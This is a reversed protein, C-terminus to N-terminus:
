LKHKVSFLFYRPQVTFTTSNSLLENFGDRNITTNNLLNTVEMVFEWSSDNKQYSLSGEMVHYDNLLQTRNRYNIYSYDLIFTFKKLLLADFKAFPRNNIYNDTRNDLQYANSSWDLGLEINPADKFNTALSTQYNQSFSYSIANQGNVINNLKAYSLSTNVLWKIKSFRKEFYSFLSYNHDAFNSNISTSLQDIGIIEVNNKFAKIKKNYSLTAMLNTFNFMNFNNYRLSYNEYQANELNRNGQYFSNYSNFTYGKARTNIDSFENSLNFNFRLEKSSSFNYSMQVRPLWSVVNNNITNGLQQDWTTYRHLTFGPSFKFTGKIMNYNIGMYDDNIRFMVDNRLSSDEFNLIQNGELIQFISSNFNQRNRTTALSFNLNSKKNLVYYYDMKVKWQLTKTLQKQNLDVLSQTNNIPLISSFPTRNRNLRYFPNQEQISHQATFSFVHRESLTYYININQNLTIPQEANTSNITESVLAKSLLESQQEVDGKKFFVDYDWQFNSNPKYSSSLKFIRNQNKFVSQANSQEQVQTAFYNKIGVSETTTQNGAGIAFGSFALKETPNYSFNFAGLQTQNSAAQESQISSFGFSDSIIIATGDSSQMNSLGGSFNLYDRFTLPNKGLNNTNGIFNLSYKPSYYFLKPDALYRDDPGGGGGVEGFWFRKNGEKLKINMAVNDQNNVLGRMQSVENFNKLVEVKSVADAPINKSALKSDGDFFDKGEVMLKSIRKGEVKIEGADDVEVGPLNELIDELKKERGTSFSDANYIITDEKIIVPMEYTVEVENLTEIHTKLTFTQKTDSKAFLDFSLPQYGLASIKIQFSKEAKLNLQFIGSENSIGFAAMGGELTDMAIINAAVIPVGISDIVKGEYRISQSWVCHSLLWLASTWCFLKM